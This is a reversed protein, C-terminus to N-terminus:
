VSIFLTITALFLARIRGDPELTLHYSTDQFAESQGESPAGRTSREASGHTGFASVSVGAGALDAGIVAHCRELGDVATRWLLCPLSRLALLEHFLGLRLFPLRASSGLAACILM